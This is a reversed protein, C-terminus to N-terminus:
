MLLHIPVMLALALSLGIVIYKFANDIILASSARGTQPALFGASLNLIFVLVFIALGLWFAMIKSIRRDGERDEAYALRLALIWVGFLIGPILIWQIIFQVVVQITADGVALTM